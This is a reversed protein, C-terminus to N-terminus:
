VTSKKTERAQVVATTNANGKERDVVQSRRAGTAGQASVLATLAAVQETLQDLKANAASGPEPEPEPKAHSSPDYGYDFYKAAACNACATHQARAYRARLALLLYFGCFSALVALQVVNLPEDETSEGSVGSGFHANYLEELKGDVSLRLLMGNYENRTLSRNSTVGAKYRVPHADPFAVTLQLPQVDPTIAFPSDRPEGILWKEMQPRDYYVADVRGAKMRTLCDGLSAGVVEEKFFKRTAQVLRDQEWYADITCVRKGAFHSLQTVESTTKAASLESAIVATFMSCMVLGSLMWFLTVYRGVTTQPTKDGYGVSTATVIGFYLADDIGSLYRRSFSRNRKSPREFFWIAHAAILSALLFQIGVNHVEARSYWHRRIFKRHAIALGTACTTHAFDICCELQASVDALAVVPLLTGSDFGSISGSDRGPGSRAGSGTMNGSAARNGSGIINLSATLNVNHDHRCKAETCIERSAKVTFPVWGINCYGVRTYYLVQPATPYMRLEYHDGKWLNGDVPRFSQGLDNTGTFVLKRQEHMYGVVDDEKVLLGQEDM